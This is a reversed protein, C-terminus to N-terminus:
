GSTMQKKANSPQRPPPLLYRSGRPGPTTTLLNRRCLLQLRRYLNGKDQRLHAVLETLTPGDLEAIAALAERERWTLHDARAAPPHKLNWRLTAPDWLLDIADDAEIGGSLKLRACNELSRGHRSSRRHLSLVIGDGYNEVMEVILAHVKDPAGATRGRKPHHDLLLIAAGHEQATLELSSLIPELVDPQKREGADLLSSFPDVVVLKPHDLALM